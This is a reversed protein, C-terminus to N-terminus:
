ISGRHGSIFAHTLITLEARVGLAQQTNVSKLVRSARANKKFFGNLLAVKYPFRSAAFNRRDRSGLRFRLMSSSLDQTSGHDVFNFSEPYPTILTWKIVAPDTLFLAKGYARNSSNVILKVQFYCPRFM